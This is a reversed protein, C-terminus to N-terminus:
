PTIGAAPLVIEKVVRETAHGDCAELHRDYAKCFIDQNVVPNRIAEIIEAENNARPGWIYTEADFFFGRNSEYDTTSSFLYVVPKRLIAADFIVSSFDTVVVDSAAMLAVIDERDTVDIVHPHQPYNSKIGRTFPHNKVLIYDHPLGDAVTAWNVHAAGVKASPQGQGHFTTAVLSVRSGLPIALERRVRERSDSVWRKDFLVDTKPIGTAKVNKLPMNFATAYADRVGEASVIAHTYGRHASSRKRPGGPLGARAFGVKKFAGSAHWLQIFATAPHLKVSYLEPFYDDIVIARSTRAHYALRLTAAPGRWTWLNPRASVAIELNNRETARVADLVRALNAVPERAADTAFLIRGPQPQLFISILRYAVVFSGITAFM